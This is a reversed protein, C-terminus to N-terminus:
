MARDAYQALICADVSAETVDKGIEAKSQHPGKVRAVVADHHREIEHPDPKRVIFPSGEVNQRCRCLNLDVQVDERLFYAVTDKLSLSELDVRQGSNTVPVHSWCNVQLRGDKRIRMKM